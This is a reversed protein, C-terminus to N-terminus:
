RINNKNSEDNLLEKYRVYPENLESDKLEIGREYMRHKLRRPWVDFKISLDLGRLYKPRESDPPPNGKRLEYHNLNDEPFWLYMHKTLDPEAGRDAATCMKNITTNMVRLKIVDLEWLTDIGRGGFPVYEGPQICTLKDAISGDDEPPQLYEELLEERIHPPDLEHIKEPDSADKTVLDAPLGRLYEEILEIGTSGEVWAGDVLVYKKGPELNRRGKFTEDWNDRYEKTSAKSRIDSM